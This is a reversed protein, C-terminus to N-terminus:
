APNKRLSPPVIQSPEFSLRWPQWDRSALHSIMENAEEFRWEGVKRFGFRELCRVQKPTALGAERRSLLRDILLKAMGKNQVMAADIGSNELMKLQKETAPEMEWMMTPTYNVLDEANISLAYQLPDVTRAKRRKMEELQRALSAEREAVADKEAQEEEEILDIGGGEEIAKDIRKAIDESKAVLSSPKCLDHRETLWLFDLLLLDKKGPSLRTGRGVMQQYLARVKTPRLVVVCDVSPCDWGETLLMSNCLMQYKGEDFAQLVENRDTSNGNVEAARIGRERLMACFKQSTLILPLFIVTKRDAAYEALKDAIEELYPELACGVDGAQFDGNSVKVGSLDLELPIMQAKIPVLYGDKIADRMSYEYAISEFFDGLSRKDGRDPTATVGLVKADPFHELVRQYSDSLVHHAEDVIITSYYDEPFRALRDPRCMSQVSGVTVPLFSGLASSEAKEYVADLGTIQKLKAAAQDLLEGRHALQLVRGSEIRNKTVEEFVVTKGTGTPLCLLTKDRQEDEWERRIAEIAEIQYPRLDM